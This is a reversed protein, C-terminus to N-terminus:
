VGRVAPTILQRPSTSKPRSLKMQPSATPVSRVTAWISTPRRKYEGPGECCQEGHRRRGGCACVWGRVKSTDTSVARLQTCASTQRAPVHRGRRRKFSAARCDAGTRPFRRRRASLSACQEGRQSWTRSASQMSVSLFGISPCCASDPARRPMMEAVLDPQRTGAESRTIYGAISTLRSALIDQSETSEVNM